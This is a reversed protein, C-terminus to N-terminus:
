IGDSTNRFKSLYELTNNLEKSASEFAAPGGFLDIGLPANVSYLKSSSSWKGAFWPPYYVDRATIGTEYLNSEDSITRTSILTESNKRILSFAEHPLLKRFNSCKVPLAAMFNISLSAGVCYAWGIPTPLQFERLSRVSRSSEIFEKSVCCSYIVTLVLYKM